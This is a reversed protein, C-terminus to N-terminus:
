VHACFSSVENTAPDREMQSFAGEGINFRKKFESEPCMTQVSPANPKVPEYADELGADGDAPASFPCAAICQVSATGVKAGAPQQSGVREQKDGALGSPLGGFGQAGPDGGGGYSGKRGRSKTAAAAKTAAARKSVLGASAFASVAGVAACARSADLVSARVAGDGLSFSVDQSDDGDPARFKLM